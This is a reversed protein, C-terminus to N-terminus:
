DGILFILVIGDNPPVFGEPELLGCPGNPGTPRLLACRFLWSQRTAGSGTVVVQMRLPVQISTREGDQIKFPFLINVIKSLFSSFSRM